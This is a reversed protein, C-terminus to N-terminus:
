SALNNRRDEHFCFRSCFARPHLRTQSKRRQFYKGCCRCKVRHWTSRDRGRHHLRAHDGIGILELNEPRNDAREGNRHHVQEGRRLDRGLHRAMIARHELEFAPGVRVAVYGDSRTFRGTYQVRRRCEMSCFRCGRRARKPKVSFRKGCGECTIAVPM